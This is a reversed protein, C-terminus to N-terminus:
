DSPKDPVNIEKRLFSWVTCSSPCYRNQVIRLELISSARGHQVDYTEPLISIVERCVSLVGRKYRGIRAKM